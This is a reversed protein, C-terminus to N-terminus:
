ENCAVQMFVPKGDQDLDLVPMGPAFCVDPSALFGHTKNGDLYYGVIEGRNNIGTAYTGSVGSPEDVTTYTAGDYMFGHQDNLSDYYYGVIQDV